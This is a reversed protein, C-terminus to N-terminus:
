PRVSWASWNTGGGSLYAAFRVNATPDYVGDFYPLGTVRRFASAHCEHIQFLGRCIGNSARPNGGSEGSMVYLAEDVHGPFYASCLGRWQETGSSYSRSPSPAAQAAARAAATRRAEREREARREARIRRQEARWRRRERDARDRADTKVARAARHAQSPGAQVPAPDFTMPAPNLVALVAILVVAM